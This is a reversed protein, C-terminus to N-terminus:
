SNSYPPVASLDPGSCSWGGHQDQPYRVLNAIGKDLTFLIRRADRAAKLVLTDPEGKLDEDVVTDTDHGAARLDAALEAPLNEDLQFRM